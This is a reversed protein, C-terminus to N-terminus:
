YSTARRILLLHTVPCLKFQFRQNMPLLRLDEYVAIAIECPECSQLDSAFFTAPIGKLVANCCDIRCLFFVSVLQTTADWSPLQYAPAPSPLRHFCTWAALAVYHRMSELADFYAGLDRVVAAPQVVTSGVSLRM